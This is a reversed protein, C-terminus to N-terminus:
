STDERERKIANREHQKGKRSYRAKSPKVRPRFRPYALARAAHNRQGRQKGM